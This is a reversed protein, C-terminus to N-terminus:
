EQGLKQVEEERLNLDKSIQEISFGAKLLNRVARRYGEHVGEKYEEPHKRVLQGTKSEERLSGEAAKALNPQCFLFLGWIILFYKM